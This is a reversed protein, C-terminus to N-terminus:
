IEIDTFLSFINLYFLIRSRFQVSGTIAPLLCQSKMATFNDIGVVYDLEIRDYNSNSNTLLYPLITQIEGEVM